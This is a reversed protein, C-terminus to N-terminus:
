KAKEISSQDGNPVTIERDWEFLRGDVLVDLDLNLLGYQYYDSGDDSETWHSNQLGRWPGRLTVYCSGSFHFVIGTNFCHESIKTDKFKRREGRNRYHKLTAVYESPDIQVFRDPIPAGIDGPFETRSGPYKEGSIPVFTVQGNFLVYRVIKVKQEVIPTCNETVGFQWRRELYLGQDGSRFFWFEAHTREPMGEVLKRPDIIEIPAACGESAQLHVKGNSEFIEEGAYYGHLYLGRVPEPPEYDANFSYKDDGELTWPDPLSIAREKAFASNAVLLISVLIWLRIVAKM